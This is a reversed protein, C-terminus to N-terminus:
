TFNNQANLVQQQELKAHAGITSVISRSANLFQIAFDFSLVIHNETLRISVNREILERLASATDPVHGANHAFCNRIKNADRIFQWDSTDFLEVIGVVKSLFSASRFVGRDKLDSPKLALGLTTVSCQAITDLANELTAYSSLFISSWLMHPFLTGLDHYQQNAFLADLPSLGQETLVDLLSYTKASVKESKLFKSLLEALDKLKSLKADAELILQQIASHGENKRIPDPM